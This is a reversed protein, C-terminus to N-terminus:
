SDNIFAGMLKISIIEWKHSLLKCFQWVVVAVVVIVNTVLWENMEPQATHINHGNWHSM